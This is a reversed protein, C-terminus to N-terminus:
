LYAHRVAASNHNQRHARGSTVAGMSALAPYGDGSHALEADFGVCRQAAIHRRRQACVAASATGRASRHQGLCSTITAEGRQDPAVDAGVARALTAADQPQSQALADAIGLRAATAVAQVAWMGLTMQMLVQQPPLAPPAELGQPKSYDM